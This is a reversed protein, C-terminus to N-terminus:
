PQTTSAPALIAPALTPDTTVTLTGTIIADADFRGIYVDYLGPEPAPIDLVPNANTTDANDDACFTGAEGHLVVLSTDQEAAFLLRLNALGEPVDLVFDPVDAILGGCVVDDDSIEFSPTTGSAVLTATITGGDTIVNDSALEEPADAAKAALAAAPEEVDEVEPEIPARKVLTAPNFEALGFDPRATIVLLGPILQNADYSGIWLKYTGTVPQTVIVEPDLVNDAADDNCLYSGDPAQVVLTSDSDSYFFVRLADVTGEWNATLVPQDNIYGVCDSNVTSADVEGGGNLSVLFPDLAFGAAMNLSLYASPEPEAPVPTPAAPQAADGSQALAGGTLLAGFL